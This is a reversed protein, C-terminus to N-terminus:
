TYEWCVEAFLPFVYGFRGSCSLCSLQKTLISWIEGVVNPVHQTISKGDGSPRPWPFICIRRVIFEGIQIGLWTQSISLPISWWKSIGGQFSALSNVGSSQQNSSSVKRKPSALKWPRLANWVESWRVPIWEVSVEEGAFNTWNRIDFQKSFGNLALFYVWCVWQEIRKHNQGLFM